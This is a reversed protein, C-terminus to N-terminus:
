LNYVQNEDISSDSFCDRDMFESLMKGSARLRGVESKSSSKDIKELAKYIKRFFFAKSKCFLIKKTSNSALPQTRNTTNSSLPTLSTSNTTMNRFCEMCKACQKSSYNMLSKKIKSNLLAEADKEQPQSYNTTPDIEYNIRPSYYFSEKVGTGGNGGAFHAICIVGVFFCFWFYKSVHSSNSDEEHRLYLSPPSFTPPSLNILIAEDKSDNDQFM